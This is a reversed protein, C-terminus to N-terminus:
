YLALNECNKKQRKIKLQKEEAEIFGRSSVALTKWSITEFKPQRIYLVKKNIEKLNELENGWEESSTFYFQYSIGMGKM